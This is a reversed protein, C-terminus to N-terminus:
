WIDVEVHLEIGFMKCVRRRIVDILRMVDSSTAGRRTVIFNAHRQSVSANGCRFGKLGAEDIIAGASRGGPNKFICGASKDRIPQTRKKCEFIEDYKKRTCQPDDERLLLTASLVIVEDIRTQRYAFGIRERPWTEITGDAGLVEIESVVDGIEGWRGGANMKVAGGITAPVGALCELGALGRHSCERAFPMLDVGSGAVVRSGQHETTRFAPRDLRVVVGDVGDDKILVNAGAGLVKVPIDENRARVAFQALSAVDRPRFLYRARGGLRFWTMKGLPVDREIDSAFEHWWRM